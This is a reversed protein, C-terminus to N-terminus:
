GIRLAAHGFFLPGVSPQCCDEGRVYHAIRAHHAGVLRPREGGELAMALRQESGGDGLVVAPDHLEDAVARQHLKGAHDVGDSAREGDLAGDLRFRPRVALADDKPDADVEAVDDDVAVVDVAVADVDRRAKFTDGLGTPDADGRDDVLADAAADVGRELVAALHRHLVDVPRDAHPFPM